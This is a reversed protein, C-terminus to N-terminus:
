KWLYDEISPVKKKLQYDSPSMALVKSNKQPFQRTDLCRELVLMYHEYWEDAWSIMADSAPWIAVEFPFTNMVVTWNYVKPYAGEIEKYGLRYKALQLHYGYTEISKVFDNYNVNKSTKLDTMLGGEIITSFFDTRFRSLIGTGPHRFFGSRESVGQEFIYRARPHNYLANIVGLLKEYEKDEDYQFIIAEPHQSLNFIEYDIKGEKTNRKYPNIVIRRRFEAPELFMLHVIKGFNLSATTPVALGNQRRKTTELYTYPSTLFLSLGTSSISDYSQHHMENTFDEDKWHAKFSSDVRRPLIAERGNLLLLNNKVIMDDYVNLM